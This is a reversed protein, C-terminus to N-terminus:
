ETRANDDMDQPAPADDARATRLLADRYKQKLDPNWRAQRRRLALDGDVSWNRLPGILTELDRTRDTTPRASPLAARDSSRRATVEAHRQDARDAAAVQGAGTIVDSVAIRKPNSRYHAVVARKALDADVDPMALAWADILIDLAPGEPNGYGYPDLAIALALVEAAEVDDM